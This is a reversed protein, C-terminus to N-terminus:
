RGPVDGSIITSRARGRNSDQGCGIASSCPNNKNPAVAGAHSRRIENDREIVPDIQRPSRAETLDRGYKELAQYKGEPNQDTV